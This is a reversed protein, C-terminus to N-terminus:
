RHEPGLEMYGETNNMTVASVRGTLRAVEAQVHKHIVHEFLHTDNNTTSTSPLNRNEITQQRSRHQNQRHENQLLREEDTMNHRRNMNRVRCREREIARQEETMM